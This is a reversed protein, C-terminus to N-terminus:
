SIKPPAATHTLSDQRNKDKQQRSQQQRRQSQPFERGQGQGGKGRLGGILLIEAPDPFGGRGGLSGPGLLDHERRVARQVDGLEFDEVRGGPLHFCDRHPVIDPSRHCRFQGSGEMGLRHFGLCHCGMGPRQVTGQGLPLIGVRGQLSRVEGGVGVM